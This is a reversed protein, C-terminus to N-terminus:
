GFVETYVDENFGVLLKKGVQITPARLNGTSGLMKELINKTAKGGPFEDLKKGKAIYITGADRILKRAESAGLKASASVREKIKVGRAEM